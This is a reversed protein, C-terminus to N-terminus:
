LSSVKNNQIRKKSLKDSNKKQIMTARKETNVVDISNNNTIAEDVQNKVSSQLVFRKVYFNDYDFQTPMEYLISNGSEVSKESTPMKEVMSAGATTSSNNMS